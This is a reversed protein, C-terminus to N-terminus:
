EKVFKGTDIVREKNYCKYIYAGSNLASINIKSETNELKQTLVLKGSIDYVELTVDKLHAGLRINIETTAPNPYLLLEKAVIEPNDINTFNGESDLKLIFIDATSKKYFTRIEGLIMCGDDSTSIIAQPSYTLNGGYYKEWIINLNSDLKCVMVYTNCFIDGCTSAMATLFIDNQSNVAIGMARTDILYLEDQNQPLTECVKNLLSDYKLIGVNDPKPPYTNYLLRSNYLISNNNYVYIDNGGNFYDGNESSILQTSDLINMNVDVFSITETNDVITFIYKGKSYYYIKPSNQFGEKVFEYISDINGELDLKYISYDFDMLNPNKIISMPILIKKLNKDIIGKGAGTEYESNFSLIKEWINNFNNDICKIFFSSSNINGILLISDNSIALIDSVGTNTNNYMITLDKTFVGEFTMKKIFGRYLTDMENYYYGSMILENNNLINVDSIIEFKEPTNFIKLFTKQPFTNFCYFILFYLIFFGKKIM